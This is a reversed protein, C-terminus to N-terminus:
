KTEFPLFFFVESMMYITSHIRWGPLAKPQSQQAYFAERERVWKEVQTFSHIEEKWKRESL